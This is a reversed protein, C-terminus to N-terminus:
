SPRYVAAILAQADPPPAQEIRRYTKGDPTRKALRHDILSRRLLAHDGFAHRAKLIANVEKETLDQKAPIAAWFVWMCLGQVAHQKPWRTMQGDDFLRMARTLQKSPQEDILTPKAAKLHQYNDYGAAKAVLGLMTAHSPLQDAQILANRLSKTFGSLDPITLSITDRPM